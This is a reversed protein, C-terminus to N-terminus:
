RGLLDRELRMVQAAIRQPDIEYAGNALAQRVSEVRVRDSVPAQALVNELRQMLRASQTLEVTDASSPAPPAPADARPSVPAPGGVPSHPTTGDIKQSM